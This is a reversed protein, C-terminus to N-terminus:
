GADTLPLEAFVHPWAPEPGGYEWVRLYIRKGNQAWDVDFGECLLSTIPLIVDESAIDCAGVLEIGCYQLMRIVHFQRDHMWNQFGVVKEHIKRRFEEKNQMRGTYCIGPEKKREM